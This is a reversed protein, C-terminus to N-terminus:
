VDTEEKKGFKGPACGYQERFIRYFYSLNRFGCEQCVELVSLEAELLLSAALEMRRANIFETPSMHLWKRFSRTLYEQSMHSLAIMRPLGEVYNERIEMRSLLDSLWAPFPKGQHLASGDSPNQEWVALFPYLFSPLVSLLYQRRRVGSEMQGIQLLRSRTEALQNGALEVQPCLAPREWFSPSCDFLRCIREFHVPLFPINILELDYQNLFDYCHTDSPRVLVFSGESLLTSSGNIRHIGKGRSILFFEYFTHSHLCYTDRISFQHVFSCGSRREEETLSLCPVEAEYSRM